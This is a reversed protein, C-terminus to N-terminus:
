AQTIRISARKWVSLQAKEWAEEEEVLEVRRRRMM